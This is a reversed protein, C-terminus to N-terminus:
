VLMIRTIVVYPIKREIIVNKLFYGGGICLAGIVASVLIWHVLKASRLVFLKLDFPEKAYGAQWM